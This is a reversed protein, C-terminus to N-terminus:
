VDENVTYEMKYNATDTPANLKVTFGNVTKATIMGNLFIPDADATNIFVANVRYATNAVATSFAVSFSSVGSSISHSGARLATGTGGGGGGGGAPISINDVPTGVPVDDADTLVFKYNTTDSLWLDCAGNSDLIIPNTNESGGNDTYTVAPNLTGAYYTYLKGGVLPDGNGDVFRQRPTPSLLISM